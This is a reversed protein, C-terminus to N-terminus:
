PEMLSITDGSRVAIQREEGAVAVKDGTTAGTGAGGRQVRYHVASAPLIVAVLAGAPAQGSAVAPGAATTTATEATIEPEDILPMRDAGPGWPMAAHWWIRTESM